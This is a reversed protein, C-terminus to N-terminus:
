RQKKTIIRTDEQLSEIEEKTMIKATTKGTDMVTIPSGPHLSSSHPDAPPEETPAAPPPQPPLTPTKETNNPIPPPTHSAPNGNKVFVIDDSKEDRAAFYTM